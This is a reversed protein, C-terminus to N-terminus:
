QCTSELGPPHVRGQRGWRCRCGTSWGDDSKRHVVSQGMPGRAALSRKKRELVPGGGRADSTSPRESKGVLTGGTERPHILERTPTPRVGRLSTLPLWRHAIHIYCSHTTILGSQGDWGHAAHGRGRQMNCRQGVNWWFLACLAKKGFNHTIQGELLTARLTRLTQIFFTAQFLWERAFYVCTHLM